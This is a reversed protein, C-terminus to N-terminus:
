LGLVKIYIALAEEIDRVVVAVHSIRRAMAGGEDKGRQPQRMKSLGMPIDHNGVRERRSSVKIM